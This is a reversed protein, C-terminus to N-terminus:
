VDGATRIKGEDLNDCYFGAKKLFERTKKDPNDYSIMGNKDLKNQVLYLFFYMVNGLVSRLSPDFAL